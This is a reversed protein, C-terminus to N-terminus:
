TLAVQHAHRVFDLNLLHSLVPEPMPADLTLVTLTQGGPEARGTHWSAINVANEAMLTGIRGIVGPQDYSGMVLLHGQPVFNMQYQNIQVVHPTKRDLLTGAMVIDEGDALTVQVSLLNAYSDATPLHKVQAIQMGREAALLPANIYSVTDGLIPTLIGKLLAVTVPKIMGQMDEGRLEVAVRTIATRALVHLLSGMREGLALYPQVTEFDVGPVFPMNVANRYDTGRLADLVQQVIQISLDQSAEVTNDGIHPTHIVNDLGVLPSHYPPEEAFVDIGAGGLHGSKIAEALAAEDITAPDGTNIIRAGPKMQAIREANLLDASEATAPAHLSVFDSRELLERLGVLFLRENGIADERMYPDYALVTMGFAFARQAVAQGVRGLGILGLTKGDLQTGAQRRRDMLWFGDKMGNHAQVIRRSLVLMLALTLEGAAVATTGPTNMVIVGRSTAADVDVGSLGATPRAILKIGPAADLLDADIPVDDRVILAHTDAIHKRIASVTPAITTVQVDEAADLLDTAEETLDTAILINYM